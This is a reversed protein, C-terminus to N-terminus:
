ASFSCATAHLPRALVLLLPRRGSLGSPAQVLLRAPCAALQCAPLRIPLQRILSRVTRTRSSRGPQKKLTTESCCGGECRRLKWTHFPAGNKPGSDPGLLLVCFQPISQAYRAKADHKQPRFVAGFIPGRNRPM